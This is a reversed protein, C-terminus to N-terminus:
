IIGEGSHAHLILAIVRKPVRLRECHSFTTPRFGQDAPTKAVIFYNERVTLPVVMNFDRDGHWACAEVPASDNSKVNYSLPMHNLDISSSTRYDGQSAKQM